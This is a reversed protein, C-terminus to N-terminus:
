SFWNAIASGISSLDNLRDNVSHSIDGLSQIVRAGGGIGDGAVAAVTTLAQVNSPLIKKLNSPLMQMTFPCDAAWLTPVYPRSSATIEAYHPILDIGDTSRKHDLGLVRLTYYFPKSFTRGLYGCSVAIDLGGEGPRLPNDRLLSYSMTM